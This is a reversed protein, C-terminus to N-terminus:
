NAIKTLTAKAKLGSPWDVVFDMKDYSPSLLTATAQTEKHTKAENLTLKAINDAEETVYGSILFKWRFQGNAYFSTGTGKILPSRDKPQGPPVSVKELELKVELSDGWM